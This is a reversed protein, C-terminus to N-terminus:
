SLKWLRRVDVGDMNMNILPMAKLKEVDDPKDGVRILYQTGEETVYGAPM